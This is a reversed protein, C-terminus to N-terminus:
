LLRQEMLCRQLVEVPVEVVQLEQPVPMGEMEEMTNDMEGVVRVEVQAQLMIGVKEVVVVL